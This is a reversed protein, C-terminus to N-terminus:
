HGEGAPGNDILSQMEAATTTPTMWKLLLSQAVQSSEESLSLCIVLEDRPLETYEEEYSKLWAAMVLENEVARQQIIRFARSLEQSRGDWIPNGDLEFPTKGDGHYRPMWRPWHGKQGLREATSEVLQEWYRECAQYQETSDLFDPFLRHIM